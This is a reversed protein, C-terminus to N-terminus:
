AALLWFDRPKSTLCYCRRGRSGRAWVVSPMKWGTAIKIERKGNKKARQSLGLLLALSLTLFCFQVRLKDGEGRECDRTSFSTTMMPAQIYPRQGWGTRSALSSWLSEERIQVGRPVDEDPHSDSHHVGHSFCSPPPSPQNPEPKGM